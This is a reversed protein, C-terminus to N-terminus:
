LDLFESTGRVAHDFSEGSPDIYRVILALDDEVYGFISYLWDNGVLSKPRLSRRSFFFQVQDVFKM